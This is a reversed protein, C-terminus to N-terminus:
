DEEDTDLDTDPARSLIEEVTLETVSDRCAVAYVSLLAAMKLMAEVNGGVFEDMSPIIMGAAEDHIWQSLFLLHDVSVFVDDDLKIISAHVDDADEVMEIMQNSLDTVQAYFTSIDDSHSETM